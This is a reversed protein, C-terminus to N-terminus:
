KLRAPCGDVKETLKDISAILKEETIIRARENDLRAKENKDRRPGELFIYNVVLALLCAAAVGQKEAFSYLTGIEGQANAPVTLVMMTLAIFFLTMM